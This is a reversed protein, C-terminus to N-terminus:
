SDVTSAPCSSLEEPFLKDATYKDVSELVGNYETPLYEPAISEHLSEFDTGHVQFQLVLVILVKVVCGRPEGKPM